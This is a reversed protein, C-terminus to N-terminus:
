PSNEDNVDEYVKFLLYNVDHQKQADSAGGSGD